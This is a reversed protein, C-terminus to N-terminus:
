EVGCAKLFPKRNFKNHIISKGIDEENPIMSLGEEEFYDALQTIAITNTLDFQKLVKRQINM